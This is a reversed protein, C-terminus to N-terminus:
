PVTCKETNVKGEKWFVRGMNGQLSEQAKELAAEREGAGTGARSDLLSSRDEAASGYSERIDRSCPDLTQVATEGMSASSLATDGWNMAQHAWSLTLSAPPM